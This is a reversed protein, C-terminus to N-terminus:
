LSQAPPGFIIIVLQLRACPVCRGEGGGHTGPLTAATEWPWCTRVGVAADAQRALMATLLAAQTVKVKSRKVKFATDSDCTVHAVERGIKTKRPREKRSKPGIYAVSVCADSLCFSTVSLCVDTLMM